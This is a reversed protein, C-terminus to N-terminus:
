RICIRCSGDDTLRRAEKWSRTEVMQELMTMTAATKGPNLNQSLWVHCEQEQERYLKSQQEKMEYEEIRQNKVGKKLKEKLRKWAPKWGGDILEADIRINGEEFQIEAGVNELTKMAEEVISNEEKTNKRRWAASIWKDESCAIYCAVRLRTEKYIDKLSKTGRGAYERRLYLREDSSQKGLM